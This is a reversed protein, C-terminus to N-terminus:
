DSACQSENPFASKLPDGRGLEEEDEDGLEEDETVGTPGITPPTTPPVTRNSRNHPKKKTMMQRFRLLAACNGDLIVGGMNFLEGKETTVL